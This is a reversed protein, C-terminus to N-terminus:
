PWVGDKAIRKSLKSSIRYTTPTGNKESGKKGGL